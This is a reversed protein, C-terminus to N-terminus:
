ALFRKVDVGRGVGCGPACPLPVEHLSLAIGGGTFGDIVGHM